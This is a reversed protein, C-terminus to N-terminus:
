GGYNELVQELDTIVATRLEPPEIVEAGQGFSRLWVSIEGIGDVMDEMLLSNDDERWVCTKRSSLEAKVRAITTYYNHFRIVVKVPKGTRYVGWANKYWDQLDFGPIPRFTESLEEIALIREVSYTKITYDERGNEQAVLYWNDLGWHYMIGLPNLKIESVEEASKRYLLMIRKSARAYEELRQCFHSRRLDEIPRRGHVVITEQDSKPIKLSINLKATLSKAEDKLPSMEQQILMQELLLSKEGNDLQVPPIVFSSNLVYMGQSNTILHRQQLEKLDRGITKEDKNNEFRAVIEAAQVGNKYASIFRLIEMQRLTADKINLGDWGTQQLFFRGQEDRAFIFGRTEMETLYRNLTSLSVGLESSLIKDTYIWPSFALTKILKNQIDSKGM